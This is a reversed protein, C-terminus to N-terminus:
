AAKRALLAVLGIGALVLGGRYALVLQTNMTLFGGAAALLGLIMLGKAPGRSGTGAQRVPPDQPTGITAPDM